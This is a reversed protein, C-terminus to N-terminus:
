FVMQPEPEEKNEREPPSENLSYSGANPEKSVSAQRDSIRSGISNKNPSKQLDASSPLRSKWNKQFNDLIKATNPIKVKDLVDRFIESFNIKDFNVKSFEEVTLPRCNPGEASGWSLGIQSRAGEQVVRALKSDYCCFTTKKKLCIKTLREREACYTGILHCKGEKRKQTLLKEEASCSTLKLSEGWGSSSACCDSFNLCHKSCGMADGRFVQGKAMLNEKKIEQLLSLKALVETMDENSKWTQNACSGDLGFPLDNGNLSSKRLGNTPPPCHFTQKWELCGKDSRKHCESNVQYCGRKRWQDCDNKSAVGCYYTRNKNWWPRKVALEKFMRTEEGEIIREEGYHCRGEDSLQELPVCTDEITEIIDDETPLPSYEISVVLQSPDWVWAHQTKSGFTLKKKTYVDKKSAHIVTGKLCVNAVPQLSINKIRDKLQFDFAEETVSILHLGGQKGTLCDFTAEQPGGYAPDRSSSQLSLTMKHIKNPIEKLTIIRRMSCTRPEKDGSEYCCHESPKPSIGEEESEESQIAKEPNNVIDDATRILPDNEPDIIIKGRKQETELLLSGAENSKQHLLNTAKQSFSEHSGYLSSETPMDTVYGVTEKIQREDFDKKETKGLLEGEKYAAEMNPDSQTIRACFLIALLCSFGKSM